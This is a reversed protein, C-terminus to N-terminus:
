KRINEARMTAQVNKSTIESCAELGASTGAAPAEGHGGAQEGAGPPVPSKWTIFLPGFEMLLLYILALFM